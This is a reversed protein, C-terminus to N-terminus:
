LISLYRTLFRFVKQLSESQQFPITKPFSVFESIIIMDDTIAARAVSKLIETRRTLSTREGDCSRHFWM